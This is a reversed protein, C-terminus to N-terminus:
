PSAALLDANPLAIAQCWVPLLGNFSDINALMGSAVPRM